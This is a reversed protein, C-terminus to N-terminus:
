QDGVSEVGEQAETLAQARAKAANKVTKRSDAIDLFILADLNTMQKVIPEADEANGSLIDLIAQLSEQNLELPLDGEEAHVFVTMVNCSGAPQDAAAEDDVIVLKGYKEQTKPEKVLEVPIEDGIYFRKGGFSCPQKAILKM